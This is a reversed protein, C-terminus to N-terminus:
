IEMTPLRDARLRETSKKVWGSLRHLFTQYGDATDSARSVKREANTDERGLETGSVSKASKQYKREQRDCKGHKGDKM